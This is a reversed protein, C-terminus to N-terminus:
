GGDLPVDTNLWLADLLGYLIMYLQWLVSFCPAM